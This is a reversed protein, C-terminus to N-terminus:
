VPMLISLFDDKSKLGTLDGVQEGDKYLLFRPISRLGFESATETEEDINVKIVNIDEHENDIEDLINLMQKCPGCWPAWFDVIHIGEAVKDELEQKKM